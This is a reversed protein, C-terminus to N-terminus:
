THQAIITLTWETANVSETGSGRNRLYIYSRTIGDPTTEKSVPCFFMAGLGREDDADKPIDFIAPYIYQTEEGNVITWSPNPTAQIFTWKGGHVVKNRSRIYGSIAKTDSIVSATGGEVGNNTLDIKVWSSASSTSAPIIIPTSTVTALPAVHAIMNKTAKIDDIEVVNTILGKSNVTISKIPNSYTKAPSPDLSELFTSPLSNLYGLSTSTQQYLLSGVSGNNTPYSVDGVKLQDTSLLGSVKAGSNERGIAISSKNGIGDYLDVLGNIPLPNTNTHILSTFTNSILTDSLSSM